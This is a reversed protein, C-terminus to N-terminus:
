QIDTGPKSTVDVSTAVTDGSNMTGGTPYAFQAKGFLAQLLQKGDSGIRGDPTQMEYPILNGVLMFVNALCFMQIPALETEFHFFTWLQPNGFALYAIGLLLANMAPGAAIAVFHKWRSYNHADPAM